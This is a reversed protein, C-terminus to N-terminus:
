CTTKKRLIESSILLGLGYILLFTPFLKFTFKDALVGFIPPLVTSGIYAFAMQLGIISASVDKGFAIPTEHMMSPYIPACGFGFLIFLLELITLNYPIIIILLISLIILLSGLRILNRNTFKFSLLGSLFRGFTLGFFFLGAFRAGISPSLEYVKVIYTSLWLGATAETACYFTFTLLAFFVGKIKFPNQIKHEVKEEEFNQKNNWMKKTFIFLLTLIFLIISVALFGDRYNDDSLFLSMIMPGTTVGIGWSCHLFNMHHAKYNLAVYNNLTADIAGGGLGLPLGILLMLWFSNTLSYILVSTSTLLSSVIVIQYPKFKRLLIGSLLSSIVTGFSVIFSLFGQYSIPINLNESIVPWSSGVLSDPLGLSVFALYIILLFLTAM